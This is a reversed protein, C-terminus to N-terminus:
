TDGVTSNWLEADDSREWEDWAQEYAAGLESARLLQVATQLAASRSGLGTRDAYDDLFQIDDDPLSVSVKM